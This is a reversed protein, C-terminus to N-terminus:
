NVGPGFIDGFVKSIPSSERGIMLSDGILVSDWATYYCYVKIDVRMYSTSGTVPTGTVNSKLSKVYVVYPLGNVFLTDVPATRDKYELYLDSFSRTNSILEAEIQQFFFDVIKLGQKQYIINHIADLQNLLVSYFSLLMTSFLCLGLLVLLMQGMNM